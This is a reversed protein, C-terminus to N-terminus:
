VVTKIENIKIGDISRKGARIEQKALDLIFAEFAERNHTWFYGAASKLDSIEPEYSVRLGSSRGEGSVKPKAKEAATAKKAAKEAERALEEARERAELNTSEAAKRAEEEAIRQKEDAEKRAKEAAEQRIKEQKELYPALAKKCVDIAKVALGTVDKTKGILINYKEQIGKKADDHPKAEEKRNKDADKVASQLMRMLKQVGEAQGETTIPDGDLWQKAESYLDTIEEQSQEFPTMEPGQNHGPM